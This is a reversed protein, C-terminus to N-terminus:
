EEIMNEYENWSILQDKNDIIGEALLAEITHTCDRNILLYANTETLKNNEDVVGDVSYYKESIEDIGASIGYDVSISNEYWYNSDVGVEGGFMAQLNRMAGEEVDQKVAELIREMQRKEIIRNEYEYDKDPDYLDVQGSIIEADEYNKGFKAEMYHELTFSDQYIAYLISEIPDKPTESYSSIDQSSYIYYHREAVSGDKMVYKFNVNSLSAGEIQRQKEITEKHAIIKEQYDVIQSIEEPEEGLIPEYMSVYAEAVQDEEPTWTEFGFADHELMMSGSFLILAVVAAELVRTKKFVRFKKELLMEVGFFVGVGVLIICLLLVAFRVTNGYQQVVQYLMAASLEGFGFAAGWRLLPKAWCISVMDGACELARKQYAIYAVLFFLISVICYILIQKGGQAKLAVEMTRSNYITHVPEHLYMSYLPSLIENGKLALSQSMGFSVAM